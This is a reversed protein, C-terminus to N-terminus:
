VPNVFRTAVLSAIAALVSHLDTETPAVCAPGHEDGTEARPRFPGAFFDAIVCVKTRPKKRPRDGLHSAGGVTSSALTDGHRPFDGFVACLSRGRCTAFLTQRHPPVKAGLAPMGSRFAQLRIARAAARLGFVADHPDITERFSCCM